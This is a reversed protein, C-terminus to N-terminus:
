HFHNLEKIVLHFEDHKTTVRQLQERLLVKRCSVCNNKINSCVVANQFHLQHDFTKKGVHKNRKGIYKHIITQRDKTESKTSPQPNYKQTDM